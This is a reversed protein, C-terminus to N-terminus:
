PGDTVDRLHRSRCSSTWFVAEMRTVIVRLLCPAEFMGQKALPTMLAGDVGRSGSIHQFREIVMVKDKQNLVKKEKVRM